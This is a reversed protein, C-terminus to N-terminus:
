AFAVAVPRRVDFVGGVDSLPFYAAPVPWGEPVRAPMLLGAVPRACVGLRSQGPDAAAPGPVGRTLYPTPYCVQNSQCRPSPLITNSLDPKPRMRLLAAAPVHPQWCSFQALCRDQQQM